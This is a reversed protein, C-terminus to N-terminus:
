KVNNKIIDELIQRLPDDWAVVSHDITGDKGRMIYQNLKDVCIEM